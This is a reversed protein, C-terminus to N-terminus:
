AWSYRYSHLSIGTIGLTELRRKFATSRRGDTVNAVTPLLYGSPPLAKLIGALEDGFSILSVMGTKCRRYAITRNTWDVDEAKLTAIDTQAGGLHWLLSYYARKAPNQERALVQQHETLTIARKEGYRVPPWNRKPLVPWPLWHMTVAFHHLRRLYVNTSVTGAKLIALFHEATTEVLPRTWLGALAKDMKVSKWRQQTAGSKTTVIQTHVDLWTRTALAPDGHQLYVQAIQLNMAPLHAAENKANLLRQADARDRTRLSTQKGTTTEESYFIGSRQFLIFRHKMHKDKQHLM